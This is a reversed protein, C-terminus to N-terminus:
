RSLILTTIKAENSYNGLIAAICTALVKEANCTNLIEVYSPIKPPNNIGFSHNNEVTTQLHCYIEM